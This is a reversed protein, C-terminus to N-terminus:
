PKRNTSKPNLRNITFTPRSDNERKQRVVPDWQDGALFKNDDRIDDYITSGYELCLNYRSKAEEVIREEENVIDDHQTPDKNASSGKSPEM